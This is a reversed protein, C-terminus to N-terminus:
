NNKTAGIMWLQKNYFTVHEEFLSVASFWGEEDCKNRLFTAKNKLIEMDEALIELVEAPTFKKAEIEKIESNEIYDSLRSDPMIDFMKQHEAVGDFYEFTKDYLMETYQHLSFFQSGEVNWHLNHLKFTIVGLDALYENFEKQLKM